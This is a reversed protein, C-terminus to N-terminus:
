AIFELRTWRVTWTTGRRTLDYTYGGASLNAESYACTVTVHRGTHWKIGSVELIIAPKGTTRDVVHSRAPENWGCGSAAKTRPLRGNFRGLFEPRPDQGRIDLCVASVQDAWGPRRRMQEAMHVFVAEAVDEEAQMRVAGGPPPDLRACSTLLAGSLAFPWFRRM